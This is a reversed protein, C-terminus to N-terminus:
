ALERPQDSETAADDQERLLGQIWRRTFKKGQKEQLQERLKDLIEKLPAIGAPLIAECFLLHLGVPSEVIDSVEGPQMQFLVAGLEPYLTDSKVDGLLGGQLSSPCESHKLAQEAFRAPKKVVRQRIKLLRNEAEERTNEPFDPNVTVLIHRATRLEPRNFKERNMYYFLNVETDEVRPARSAILALVAEVRLERELAVRLDTLRLNNDALEEFFTEEDGYRDAIQHVARDVQSQPVVIDAAEPSSLVAQEILYEKAAISRVQRYQDEDLAAPASGFQETAIRLLRYQISAPELVTPATDDM